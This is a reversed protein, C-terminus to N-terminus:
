EQCHHVVGRERRGLINSGSGSGSGSSSSDTGTKGGFFLWGRTLDLFVLLRVGDRGKEEVMKKDKGMEWGGGGCVVGVGGGGSGEEMCVGGGLWRQKGGM